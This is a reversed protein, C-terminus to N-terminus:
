FLQFTLKSRYLELATWIMFYDLDLFIFVLVLFKCTELTTIKKFYCSLM